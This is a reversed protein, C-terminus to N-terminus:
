PRPLPLIAAPLGPVRRAGPSLPLPSPPTSLSVRGPGRGRLLRRLTWRTLFTPNTAWGQNGALDSSRFGRWKVFGFAGYPTFDLEFAYGQRIDLTSVPTNNIGWGEPVAVTVANLRAANAWNIEEDIAALVDIEAKDNLLDCGHLSCLVIILSCLLLRKRNVIIQERNDTFQRM